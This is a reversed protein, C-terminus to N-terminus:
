VWGDKKLLQLPIHRNLCETMAHYHVMERRKVSVRGFVYIELQGSVRYALRSGKTRGDVIEVHAPCVVITIIEM